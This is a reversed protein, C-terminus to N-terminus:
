SSMFRESSAATTSFACRRGRNTSSQTRSIIPPTTSRKGRGPRRRREHQRALLVELRDVLVVDDGLAEPSSPSSRWSSAVPSCAGAGCTSARSARRRSSLLASEVGVCRPAGGLRAAPGRVAVAAPNACDSLACRSSVLEAAARVPIRGPPLPPALQPDAGQQHRPDRRQVCGRRRHHCKREASTYVNGGRSASASADSRQADQDLKRKVVKSAASSAWQRRPVAAGRSAQGQEEQARGADEEAGKRVGRRDARLRHVPGQGQPDHGSRGSGAAVVLTKFSGAAVATDVINKTAAASAEPQPARASSVAPAVMFAAAVAASIAILKMHRM